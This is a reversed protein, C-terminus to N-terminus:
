DPRINGARIVRTWKELDARMTAGLQEPTGPVAEVGQAAMRQRVEPLNLVRVLDASLRGVVDRPIGAPGLMAFWTGAEFGLYGSEAVTPVDPTTLSRQLGTTAIARVKGAKVQPLASVPNNFMGQLQGGLLDTTAPAAGKYPVHVLDIGAVGRFLEAALHTPTGTGASGFSLKGPNARAYDVLERLNRVPLDLNTVLVLAYYAVMSIPTFDRIPDYPLKDYLAGNTVHSNAALLITYGDAPAKATLDSGLNGGAGPKNDVVVSQGWLPALKDSLTRGIVDGPGGPAFPVIMRVPRQPFSQAQAANLLGPMLMSLVAMGISQACRVCWSKQFSASTFLQM